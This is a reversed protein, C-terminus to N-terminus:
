ELLRMHRHWRKNYKIFSLITVEIILPLRLFFSNGKGLISSLVSNEFDMKDTNLLQRITM